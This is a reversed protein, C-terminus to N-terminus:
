KRGIMNLSLPWPSCDDTVFDLEDCSYRRVDAFGAEVLLTSLYEFDFANYHFNTAYDQGGFLPPLINRDTWWRQGQQKAQIYDSVLYEFDPVSLRLLGGPCLKRRWHSLVQPVDARPVHELVHCAYIEAVSEDEAVSDLNRIDSQVVRSDQPEVDVNVFGEIFNAGCGLHLRM